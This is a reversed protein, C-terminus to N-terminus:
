TVSSLYLRALQTLKTAIIKWSSVAMLIIMANELVIKSSIRPGGSSYAAPAKVARWPVYTIAMTLKTAEAQLMRDKLINPRRM